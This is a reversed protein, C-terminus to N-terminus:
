WGRSLDYWTKMFDIILMSSMITALLLIVSSLWYKKLVKILTLGLGIPIQILSWCLFILYITPSTSVRETLSLTLSEGFLKTLVDAHFSIIGCIFTPLCLFLFIIEIGKLIKM